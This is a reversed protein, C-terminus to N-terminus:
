SDDRAPRKVRKPRCFRHLGRKVILVSAFAAVPIWLTSASGIGALFSTVISIQLDVPKLKAEAYQAAWGGKGCIKRRLRPRTREVLNIFLKFGPFTTWEHVIDPDELGAITPHGAAAEEAFGAPLADAPLGAYGPFAGAGHRRADEQNVVAVVESFWTADHRPHEELFRHLDRALVAMAAYLQGLRLDDRDFQPHIDEPDRDGSSIRYAQMGSPITVPLRDIQRVLGRAARELAAADLHQEGM